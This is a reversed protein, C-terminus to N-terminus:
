NPNQVRSFLFFHLSLSYNWPFNRASFTLSGFAIASALGPTPHSSEVRSSQGVRTLVRTVGRTLVFKLFVRTM